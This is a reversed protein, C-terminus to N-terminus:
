AGRRLLWKYRKSRTIAEWGMSSVGELIIMPCILRSPICRALSTSVAQRRIRETGPPNIICVIM